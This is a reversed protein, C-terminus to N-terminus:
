LGDGGERGSVDLGINNAATKGANKVTVMVTQQRQPGRPAGQRARQSAPLVAGIDYGDVPRARCRRAHLPWRAEHRCANLQPHASSLTLASTSHSRCGVLRNVLGIKEDVTGVCQFPRTRARPRALAMTSSVLVLCGRSTPGPSALEQAQRPRIKPRDVLAGACVLNRCACPMVLEAFFPPSASRSALVGTHCLGGSACFMIVLVCLRSWVLLCFALILEFRRRGLPPRRESSPAGLRRRRSDIPKKM